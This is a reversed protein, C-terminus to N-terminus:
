KNPYSIEYRNTPLSHSLPQFFNITFRNFQGLPPERRETNQSGSLQCKCRQSCNALEYFTFRYYKFKNIFTYSYLWIIIYIYHPFISCVNKKDKGNKSLYNCMSNHHFFSLAQILWHKVWLAGSLPSGIRSVRSGGEKESFRM